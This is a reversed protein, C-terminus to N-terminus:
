PLFPLESALPLGIGSIFLGQQVIGLDLDQGIDFFGNDLADSIRLKKTAMPIFGVLIERFSRLLSSKRHRLNLPDLELISRISVRRLDPRSILYRPFYRVSITPLDM